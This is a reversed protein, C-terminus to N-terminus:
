KIKLHIKKNLFYIGILFFLIISLWNNFFNGNPSLPWLCVIISSLILINFNDNIKNLHYIKILLKYQIFLLFLFGLLGLEALFQMYLNHPHTSCSGTEVEEIYKNGDDDERIFNADFFYNERSCLYRYMRPGQGFIINDKFMVYASKYHATYHENFIIFNDEKKLSKDLGGIEYNNNILNNFTDSLYRKKLNEDALIVMLSLIGVFFFLKKKTEVFIYYLILGVILFLIATRQGSVLITFSFLVILSYHNLFFNQKFYNKYFFIALALLFLRSIYSGLIMEDGFLGSVKTSVEQKMLLFNFGFFYQFIGDISVFIISFFIIKFFIERIHESSKFFFFNLALVFLGFRFYFLSSKLSFFINESFLSRILIYLYFIIFYKFFKSNLFDFCKLKIVYYIFLSNVIFLIIEPVLPGSVLAIPVLSILILLYENLTEPKYKKLLNEM